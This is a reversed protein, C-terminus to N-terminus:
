RYFGSHQLPACCHTATANSKPLENPRLKTETRPWLWRKAGMALNGILGHRNTCAGAILLQPLKFRLPRYSVEKEQAKPDKSEGKESGTRKRSKTSSYQM